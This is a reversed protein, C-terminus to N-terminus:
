TQFPAVSQSLSPQRSQHQHPQPSFTTPHHLSTSSRQHDLPLSFASTAHDLALYLSGVVRLLRFHIIHVHLHDVDNAMDVQM